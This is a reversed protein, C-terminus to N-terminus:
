VHTVTGWHWWPIGGTYDLWDLDHTFSGKVLPGPDELMYRAEIWSRAQKAKEEFLRARPDNDHRSWLDALVRYVLYRHAAPPLAPADDDEWLLAPRALYRVKLRYTTAQRYYLRLRFVQGEHEPARRANTDYWGGEIPASLSVATTTGAVGAQVLRWAQGFDDFRAYINKKFPGTDPLTLNVTANAADLTLKPDSAPSLPGETGRAQLTVAFEYGTSPTMTGAAARAAGPAQHLGPLYVSEARIWYDPTGTDEEWMEADLAFPRSAPMLVDRNSPDWVGLVEVVDPPLALYRYRITADATATAGQYGGDLDVTTNSTRTVIDYERGDPGLIVQGEAELPFGTPDTTTVTTSAATFTCATVTLDPQAEVVKDRILFPWRKSAGLSLLALNVARRLDVKYADGDPYYDTEAKIEDLIDKLRM